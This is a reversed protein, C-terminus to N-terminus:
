WGCYYGDHVIQLEDNKNIYATVKYDTHYLHDAIDLIVRVYDRYLDLENGSSGYLSNLYKNVELNEDSFDFKLDHEEYDSYDTDNDMDVIESDSYVDSNHECPDGDNFSPTYGVFLLADLKYEDFVEKMLKELNEETYTTKKFEEYENQKTVITQLLTM